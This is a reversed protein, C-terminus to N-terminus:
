SKTQEDNTKLATLIKNYATAIAEPYNPDTNTSSYEVNVIKDAILKTLELALESKNM